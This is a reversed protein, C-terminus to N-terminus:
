QVTKNSSKAAEADRVLNAVSTLVCSNRRLIAKTLQANPDEASAVPTIKKSAAQDAPSGQDLSSESKASAETGAASQDDSNAPAANPGICGDPTGLMWKVVAFTTASIKWGLALGYTQDQIEVIQLPAGAKDWSQDVCYANTEKASGSASKREKGPSAYIYTCARAVAQDGLDSRVKMLADLPAVTDRFVTGNISADDLNPAPNTSTILIVHLDINPTEKIARYIDIATSAGSNDSYAGDVFNWRKTDMMKPKAKDPNQMAVSFPPMILPFRASVSAASMLNAQHEDPMGVDSFSYLSEDTAHLDFPAFAVRFGTEVWTSNLVLAPADGAPSWSDSFSACLQKGAEADQASTSYDFSAVLAKSRSLPAGFIEPVISGVVPSFHDGRMINAVEKQLFGTADKASSPHAPLRKESQYQACTTADDADSVNNAPPQVEHTTVAASTLPHDLARFVAAGLSGGSVGSIAFVHKSFEPVADQLKALLTSVASAAYIGGGEAAIIFVPYKGTGVATPPLPGDPGCDPAPRGPAVSAIGRFELWCEFRTTVANADIAASLQPNQVAFTESRLPNWNILVILPLLLGVFGVAYQRSLFGAVAFMLYVAALAVATLGAYNPFMVSVVMTLLALTLAPFGSRQSLIALVAFTSILFLLELLVTGLPGIFRYVYVARDVGGFFSLLEVALALLAVLAWIAPRRWKYTSLRGLTHGVILGIAVTVCIAVPFIAWRGPTPYSAVPCDKWHIVPQVPGAIYQACVFYVALALWPMLAWMALWHRRRKRLSIGTGSALNLFIFGRRRRYLRQYILFYFVTLAVIVIDAIITGATRHTVNFLDTFLLFLLAGVPLAVCAVARQAMRHQEGISSFYAVALGLFIVGCAIRYGGYVPLYQMSELADGTIGASNLLHCYRDAVFERAGFLGVSLGVWPLFALVFAAARQLGRLNSGATPDSYSSYVVNIRMTSLANHAEYLVASILTLATFAMMISVMWARTHSRAGELSAIYIERFQGDTGLFVFLIVVAALPLVHFINMMSRLPRWLQRHLYLGLEDWRSAWVEWDTM